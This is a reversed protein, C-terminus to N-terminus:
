IREPGLPGDSAANPMKLIIDQPRPYCHFSWCLKGHHLRVVVRGNGPAM